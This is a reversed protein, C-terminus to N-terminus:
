TNQGQTKRIEMHRTFADETEGKPKSDADILNGKKIKLGSVHVATISANFVTILELWNKYNRMKPDLCTKYSDGDSGKFFVYFFHGGYKSPAKTIKQVKYIM